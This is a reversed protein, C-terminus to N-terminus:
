HFNGLLQCCVLVTTTESNAQRWCVPLSCVRLLRLFVERAKQFKSQPYHHFLNHKRSTNSICCYRHKGTIVNTIWHCTTEQSKEFSDDPKLLVNCSITSVDALLKLLDAEEWNSGTITVSAPRRSGTRLTHHFQEASSKDM